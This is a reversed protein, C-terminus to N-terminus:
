VSAVTYLRLSHASRHREFKEVTGGSFSSLENDHEVLFHAVDKVSPNVSGVCRYFEAEPHKNFIRTVDTAAGPVIPYVVECAEHMHYSM